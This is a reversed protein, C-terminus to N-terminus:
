LLGSGHTAACTFREVRFNGRSKRVGYVACNRKWSGYGPKLGSPGKRKQGPGTKPRTGSPWPSRSTPCTNDRQRNMSGCNIKWGTCNWVWRPVIAGTYGMAGRKLPSRSTVVGWWFTARWPADHYIGGTPDFRWYEQVELAAYVDRKRTHDNFGGTKSGVELVFDPPQGIEEITYGNAEWEITEPAIPLNLAVLCDPRPSTRALGARPCLYGEGNVLVDSRGLTHRYYARLTMITEAIYPLQQMDREHEPPDPLPTLKPHAVPRAKSTM